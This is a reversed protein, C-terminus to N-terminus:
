VVKQWKASSKSILICCYCPLTERLPEVVIHATTPQRPVSLFEPAHAPTGGVRLANGRTGGKPRHKFGTGHCSLANISGRKQATPKQWGHRQSSSLTLLNRQPLRRWLGDAQTRDTTKLRSESYCVREIPNSTKAKHLTQHIVAELWPSRM